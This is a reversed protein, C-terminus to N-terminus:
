TSEDRSAPWQLGLREYLGRMGKRTYGAATCIREVDGRHEEELKSVYHRTFADIAEKCPM